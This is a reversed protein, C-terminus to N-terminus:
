EGPKKTTTATHTPKNTLNIPRRHKSKTHSAFGTVIRSVVLARAGGHSAIAAVARRSRLHLRKQSKESPFMRLLVVDVRLESCRSKEGVYYSTQSVFSGALLYICTAANAGGLTVRTFAM